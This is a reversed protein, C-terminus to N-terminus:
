IIITFNNTKNHYTPQIVYTICNEITTICNSSPKKFYGCKSERDCRGDNPNLYHNTENDIFKVFTKKNCNPCIFKRSTSLKNARIAILFCKYFKNVIFCIM